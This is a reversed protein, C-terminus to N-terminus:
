WLAGTSLLAPAVFPSLAAAVPLYRYGTRHSRVAVVVDVVLAVLPGAIMGYGLFAWMLGDGDDGHGPGSGLACVLSFVALPLVAGLLPLSLLSLSADKLRSPGIRAPTDTM